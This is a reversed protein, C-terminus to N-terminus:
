KRKAWIWYVGVGRESSRPKRSSSEKYEVEDGNQFVPSEQTHPYISICLYAWFGVDPYHHNKIEENHHVNQGAGGVDM